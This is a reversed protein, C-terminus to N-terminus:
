LMCLMCEFEIGDTRTRFLNAFLQDLIERTTSVRAWSDMWTMSVAMVCLASTDHICEGTLFTDSCTDTLLCWSSVLIRKAVVLSLM